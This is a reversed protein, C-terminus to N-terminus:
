FTINQIAPVGLREEEEELIIIRPTVMLMLSTTERGIGINRFLRNILPTKALIPVGYELREERLTKVGGLLVTGGDPVTVTTSITTITYNPEQIQAQIASSQGGLGGGGVAAPISFPTFGALTIFTPSLSMRVYRRDASVVPTVMLTVGNPFSQVSPQFAVAGFGVVPTLSAVYYQPAQNIVMAPAGNFSTVKPAQVINSRIDGQIAQMFLYV